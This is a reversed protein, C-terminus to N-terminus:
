TPIANKAGELLSFARNVVPSKKHGNRPQIFASFYRCFHVIKQCQAYILKVNAGTRFPCAGYCFPRSGRLVSQGEM